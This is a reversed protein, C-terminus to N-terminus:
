CGTERDGLVAAPPPLGETGFALLLLGGLKGEDVLITSRSRAQFLRTAARWDGSSEVEAQRTRVGASWLRYGLALLAKRQSVPGWAQLGLRRGHSALAELDVAATVDRSGPDALVDALVQQDRYAHVPGPTVGGGFGYDFFFSYGRQLIAALDRVLAVAAPSVPREEGASLPQDLLNVAGETPEGEVEVLRDDEAGVWVEVTRGDRERLRHFPLNDLVENAIVCGTVPGIEAVTDAAELGARRLATVQGATREVAVYRVAEVLDPVAGVSELVQRALTGDGAGMEVVTYPRPRGLHDWCEAVQRGLLDGFAPSVHPSTVFHRDEGIPSRAYFGEDPDYLAADMFEAFTIPGHRRIREALAAALTV